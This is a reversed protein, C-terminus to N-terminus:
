TMHSFSKHSSYTPFCFCTMCLSNITSAYRFLCLHLKGFQLEKMVSIYKDQDSHAYQLAGPQSLSSDSEDRGLSDTSRERRLKSISTHVIRATEQIDPILLALGESEEEEQKNKSVEGTGKSKNSRCM